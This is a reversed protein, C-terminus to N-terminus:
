TLAVTKLGGNYVQLRNNTTDYWLAVCGTQTAPVGTATGPCTPIYVFGATASTALAAAQTVAGGEKPIKCPIRGWM